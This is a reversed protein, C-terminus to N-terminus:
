FLECEAVVILCELIVELLIIQIFLALLIFSSWRINM